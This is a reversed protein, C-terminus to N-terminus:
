DDTRDNTDAQILSDTVRQIREEDWEPHRNRVTTRVDKRSLQERALAPSERDRIRPLTPRTGALALVATVSLAGAVVIGLPSAQLSLQLAV